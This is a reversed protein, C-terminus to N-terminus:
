AAPRTIQTTKRAKIIVWFGPSYIVSKMGIATEANKMVKRPATSASMSELLDFTPLFSSNATSKEVNKMVSETKALPWGIELKAGTSILVSITVAATIIRKIIALGRWLPAVCVSRAAM